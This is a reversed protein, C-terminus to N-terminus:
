RKRPRDHEREAQVAGSGGLGAPAAPTLIPAVRPREGRPPAVVGHPDAPRSATPLWRSLNSVSSRARRTDLLWRFFEAPTM